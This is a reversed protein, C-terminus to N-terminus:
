RLLDKIPTVNILTEITKDLTPIYYSIKIKYENEDPVPIVEVDRLQVRPDWEFMTKIAAVINRNTVDDIKDSVFKRLLNGYEPLLIREGPNWDFVNHIAIDVAIFDVNTKFQRNDDNIELPWSVDVFTNDRQSPLKDKSYDIVVGM